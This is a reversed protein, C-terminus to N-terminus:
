VYCYHTFVTANVFIFAVCLELKCNLILYRYIYLKYEM